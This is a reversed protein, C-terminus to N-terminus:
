HTDNNRRDNKDESDHTREFMAHILALMIFTVALGFVTGLILHISHIINIVTMRMVERFQRVATHHISRRVTMERRSTDM